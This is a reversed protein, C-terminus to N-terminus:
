GIEASQYELRAAHVAIVHEEVLPCNCTESVDAPRIASRYIRFYTTMLCRLYFTTPVLRALEAPFLQGITGHNWSFKFAM